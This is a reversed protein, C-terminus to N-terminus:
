ESSQEKEIKLFDKAAATLFIRQKDKPTLERELKIKEKIAGL